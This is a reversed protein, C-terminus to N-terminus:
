PKPLGVLKPRDVALEEAAATRRGPRNLSWPIFRSRGKRRKSGLCPAQDARHGGEHTVAQPRHVRCLVLLAEYNAVPALTTTTAATRLTTAEHGQLGAAAPEGAREPTPRLWLAFRQGHGDPLHQHGHVAPRQFRLNVRLRRIPRQHRRQMRPVHVSIPMRPFMTGM